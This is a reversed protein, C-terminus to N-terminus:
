CPPKPDDLPALIRVALEAPCGRDILALLAHIDHRADRAVREALQPRMGAGRLRGARWRALEEGPAQRDGQPTIRPM